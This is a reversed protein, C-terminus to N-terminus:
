FKIYAIHTFCWCNPSKSEPIVVLAKNSPIGSPMNGELDKWQPGSATQWSSPNHWDLYITTAVMTADETDSPIEADCTSLDKCDSGELKFRWQRHTFDKSHAADNM